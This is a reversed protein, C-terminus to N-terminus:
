GAGEGVVAAVTLPNKADIRVEGGAFKSPPIPNAATTNLEFHKEVAAVLASLEVGVGIIATRSANFNDVM